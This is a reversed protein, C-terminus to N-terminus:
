SEVSDVKAEEKKQILILVKEYTKDYEENLGILRENILRISRLVSETAMKENELYQSAKEKEILDKSLDSKLNKLQMPITEIHEFLSNFRGSIRTYYKKNLMYDDILLAEEKNVSDNVEIIRQLTSEIEKIRSFVKGTDISYLVEKASDLSAMMSNIEKIEESFKNSCSAITILATFVLILNKM